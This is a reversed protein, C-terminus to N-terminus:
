DWDSRQLRAFITRVSAAGTGLALMFAIAVAHDKPTAGSAPSSGTARGTIMMPETVPRPETRMPRPVVPTPAPAAVPQPKPKPRVPVVVLATAVGRERGDSPRNIVKGRTVFTTSGGGDLNIADTAGMRRMYDSIELLSMGEASKPKRGDVTVLFIEGARNWGVVTRPHRGQVLGRPVVTFTRRGDRLLVHSGGISGVADENNSRVTVEAFRKIRKQNLNSWLLDLAKAGAGNGALVAGDAPIPANGIHRIDLFRIRAPTGLQLPPRPQEIRIRIETTDKVNRTTKGYAATFMSVKGGRLAVNIGDLTMGRGDSLVIGGTWNESGARISGNGDILLQPRKADPSRLAQGFISLGGIPQGSTSGATKFFDGNVGVICKTRRCMSSTTELGGSIAQRAIVARLEYPADPRLRAVHIGQAEANGRITVHDLGPGMQEWNVSRYGAPISFGTGAAGAPGSVLMLGALVSAVVVLPRIRPM